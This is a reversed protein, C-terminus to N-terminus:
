CARGRTAPRRRRDPGTADYGANQVAEILASPRLLGGLGDVMARQTALNVEARVVGPVGALAREVRGACTACTMGTIALERRDPRIDYGAAEVAEALRSPAVQRPDFRVDAQEDALNVTAAVGPLGNLGAEVRGACTACTMGIIPLRVRESRDEPSNAPGPGVSVPGVSVPGVSSPADSAPADSAPRISVPAVSVPANM